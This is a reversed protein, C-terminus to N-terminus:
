RGSEGGESKGIVQLLSLEAPQLNLWEQRHRALDDYSMDWIDNETFHLRREPHGSHIIGLGEDCDLVSVGLDPQTSRLYVITKWVDGNWGSQQAIAEEPTRATAIASPPNCDHLVIVGEPKLYLLAHQVDRLSQEYSHWGDIFAVDVPHRTLVRPAFRSFFEDSTVAFFEAGALRSIEFLLKRYWVVKDATFVNRPDVGIKNAARVRFWADGIALGIELYTPRTRARLLANIVHYRQM